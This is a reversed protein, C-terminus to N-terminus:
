RREVSQLFRSVTDAFAEPADITTLHGSGPIVSFEAGPTLSQYYTVTEPRAEDFEGTTYLVPLRLEGLRSSREYTRLTGTATFESPGWMYGYLEAGFHAFTSDVEPGGRRTLYQAYFAQVAAQYAPASYTGAAEHTHIAEQVSDPLTAILADADQEWRAVSLAPGALVLSRVGDAGALVYDTALMSGWSHGLLHIERLGLHARLSDLEAMFREIRWLTTDSPMDSRGAGLQDYFVVPRETGLRALSAMYYSPAGPGGHLVVLPTGPGDGVVRYWVRGGPVAAYGEGPTLRQTDCGALALCLSLVLISRIHTM